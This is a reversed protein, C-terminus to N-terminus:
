PLVTIAARAENGALDTVVVQLSRADGTTTPPLYVSFSGDPNSYAIIAVGVGWDAFDSSAVLLPGDFARLTAIGSGVDTATGRLMRSSGDYILSTLTPPLIDMEFVPALVLVLTVTADLLNGDLTATITTAGPNIGATFTSAYSGNGVDVVASLTGLPQTSAINVAGRSGGISEGLADRLTVLISSTAQGDARLQLPLASLTSTELSPTALPIATVPESAPGDDGTSYQAVVTFTYPTRNVLGTITCSRTGPTTCSAGGPEATVRYGIVTLEADEVPPEWTLLVERDGISATVNQPPNLTSAVTVQIRGFVDAAFGSRATVTTIGPLNATLFGTQDVAVITPDASLWTVSADAGGVATVTASLQVRSGPALVLDGQDISVEAVNPESDDFVFTDIAADISEGGADMGQVLFTHGDENVFSNPMPFALSFAGDPAVSGFGILQPDSFVWVLYDSLPQLGVGSVRVLGGAPILLRPNNRRAPIPNGEADLVSFTTTVMRIQIVLEGDVVTTEAHPGSGSPPTPVSVIRTERIPTAPGAGIANVARVSVAVTAGPNFGSLLVSGGTPLPPDLTRWIHGDLSLEHALVPRGGDETPANFELLATGLATTPTFRLITPAGPPVPLTEFFLTTRSGTILVGNRFMLISCEVGPPLPPVVAQVRAFIGPRSAQGPPAVATLPNLFRVSELPVNCIRFELDDTFRGLLELTEGPEGRNPNVSDLYVTVPVVIPLPGCASLLAGLLVLM